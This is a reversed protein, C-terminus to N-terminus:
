LRGFTNDWIGQGADKAGDVINGGADILFGGVDEALNVLDGARDGIFEGANGAFEAATQAVEEVGDRLAGQFVQAAADLSAGTNFQGELDVGFGAGVAASASAEFEINGGSFSADFGASGTAGAYASLTAEGSILTKGEHSLSIGGTISAQAGAFGEVNASVEVGNRGIDLSLNLEGSAGIEGLAALDVTVEFVEGHIEATFTKTASAGAELLTAEIDVNVDISVGSTTVAASANGDVSFKPGEVYADAQIGGPLTGSTSANLGSSGSTGASTSGGLLKKGDAGQSKAENKAEADKRAQNQYTANWAKQSDVRYSSTM